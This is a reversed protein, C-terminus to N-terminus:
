GWFRGYGRKKGARDVNQSPVAPYMEELAHRSMTGVVGLLAAASMPHEAEAFQVFRRLLAEVDVSGSRYIEDLMVMREGNSLVPIETAMFGERAERLERAMQRRIVEGTDM